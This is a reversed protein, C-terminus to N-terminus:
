LMLALPIHSSISAHDNPYPKDYAILQLLRRRSHLAVPTRAGNPVISLREPELERRSPALEFPLIKSLGTM